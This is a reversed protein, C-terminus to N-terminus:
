SGDRTTRQALTKVADVLHAPDAPKTIHMQFGAALVDARTAASAHATLAAIPTQGGGDAPLARLCRLLWFGDREPMGIDSLMVDPPKAQVTALAERANDVCTVVAGATELTIRVIELCDLDDDVLLVRVGELPAMM